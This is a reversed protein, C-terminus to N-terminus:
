PGGGQKVMSGLWFRAAVAAESTGGAMTATLPVEDSDTHREFQTARPAGSHTRSRPRSMLVLIPAGISLSNSSPTGRGGRIRRADCASHEGGRIGTLFGDMRNV